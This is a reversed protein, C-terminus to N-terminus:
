EEIEGGVAASHADDHRLRRRSWALFAISLTLGLAEAAPIALWLGTLGMLRPLVLLTALLFVFTRALSLGGSVKGNNLATFWTIAFINFAMIPMGIMGLRIGDVALTHVETGAPVYVLSIPHALALGLVTMVAAGILTVVVSTRLLQRLRGFNSAGHNFSVIPSIGYAYGMSAMSFFGIGITAIAVAAVGETGALDLAARNMVLVTVAPALLSVAESVGNTASQRLAAWDWGPRTWRLVASKRAFTWLGFLAPMGWGIGTAIAAGRLGWGLHWILLFNLGLNALGGVIAM